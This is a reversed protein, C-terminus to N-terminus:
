GKKYRESVGMVEVLAFIFQIQYIQIKRGIRARTSIGFNM